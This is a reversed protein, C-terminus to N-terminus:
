PANEGTSHDSPTSRRPPPPRRNLIHMLGAFLMFACYAYFVVLVTM